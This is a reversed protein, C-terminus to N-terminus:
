QGARVEVLALVESAQAHRVRDSRGDSGEDFREPTLQMLLSRFRGPDVIVM